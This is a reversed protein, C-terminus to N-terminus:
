LSIALLPTDISYNGDADTFAYPETATNLSGDGDIDIFAIAGQIPGKIAAGSTGGSSLSGGSTGGCAALTFLSLISFSGPSYKIVKNGARVYVQSNLSIVEGDVKIAPYM